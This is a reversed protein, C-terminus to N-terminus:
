KKFNEYILYSIFNSDDVKEKGIFSDISFEGTILFIILFTVFLTIVSGYLVKPFFSSLSTYFSRIPNTSLFNALRTTTREPFGERFSLDGQQLLLALDSSESKPNNM